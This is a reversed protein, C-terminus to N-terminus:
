GLQHFPPIAPGSYLEDIIVSGHEDGWELPDDDEDDETPLGHGHGNLPQCNGDTGIDEDADCRGEHEPEMDTDGQRADMIAILIEVLGELTTDELSLLYALPASSVDEPTKRRTTLRRMKTTAKAM